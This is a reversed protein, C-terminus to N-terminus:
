PHLAPLVDREIQAAFADLDVTDSKGRDAPEIQKPNQLRARRGCADGQMELRLGREILQAAIVQDNGGVAEVGRYAAGEFAIEARRQRIGGVFKGPVAGCLTELRQRLGEHRSFEAAEVGM